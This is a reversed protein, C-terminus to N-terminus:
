RITVSRVSSGPGGGPRTVASRYGAARATLMRGAAVAVVVAPPGSRVVPAARVAAGAAGGGTPPGDDPLPQAQLHLAAPCRRGPRCRGFCARLQPSSPHRQDTPTTAPRAAKYGIQVPVSNISKTRYHSSPTMLKPVLAGGATLAGSWPRGAPMVARSYGGTAARRPVSPARRGSATGSPAREHERNAPVPSPTRPPHNVSQMQRGDPLSLRGLVPM